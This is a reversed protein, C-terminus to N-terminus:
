DANLQKKNRQKKGNPLKPIEEVRRIKNPMLRCPLVENLAKRVSGIGAEGVYDMCVKQGYRFDDEGYVICDDIGPIAKAQEEIEEPFLNVGGRILMSDKRGLIYLYGERDIRAMDGTYLWGGRIKQETLDNRGYYGLMMSKSKVLLEGGEIKVQTNRVPKGISGAHVFFEQPPLVSVRPGNETLGYVHYFNIKDQYDRLLDVVSVSLREGSVVIETLSTDLLSNKLHYLMTPTCGLIQTKHIQLEKVLRQPIFNEEYFSIELGRCLGFLLEGTLASIHVLPRAILMKQGERVQFYAEIAKLNEIIASHTLMVGKPMGTTGSTFIIFAVNADIQPNKGLLSCIREVYTKGYRIDVPVAVREGALCKLLEIAGKQRSDCQIMQVKGDSKPQIEVMNILEGYTIRGESFAIRNGYRLMRERLFKWLTM